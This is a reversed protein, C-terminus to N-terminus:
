FEGFKFNNKQKQLWFIRTMRKDANLYSSVIDFLLTKNFVFVIFFRFCIYWKIPLHVRGRLQFIISFLAKYGHLYDANGPSPFIPINDYQCPVIRTNTAYLANIALVNDQIYNLHVFVCHLISLNQTAKIKSLIALCATRFKYFTQQRSKLWFPLYEVFHHCM